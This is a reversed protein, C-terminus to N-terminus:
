CMLVAGSCSCEDGRVALLKSRLLFDLRRLAARRKEVRAAEDLEGPRELRQGPQQLEDEIVAPLLRYTGAPAPIPRCWADAPSLPQLAAAPAAAAIAPVVNHAHQGAGSQLIHLATSVDFLPARAFRLEEHLRFFEDAAPLTSLLLLPM